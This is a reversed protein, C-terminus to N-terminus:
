RILYTDGVKILMGIYKPQTKGNNEVAQNYSDLDFVENTDERFAYVTNKYTLETANWEVFDQNLLRDDIKDTKFSPYSSFNNSSVKGYGYCVIQNDKNSYLECDISTEKIAHLIQENIDNKVSAIEYLSEDTTVPTKNDLRSKDRDRLEIHKDSTQQEKSLTSLYLFVKVNRLEEPLLKHSCIRRARGIVQQIRVMHWYPEVIHVFRTNTLNIGEAGSSTIMFIKIIEGLHNNDHKLILKSVINAPVVTWNSNYINRILEKVEPSETGTYLVFKPKAADIDYEEIDYGNNTKKLKFEAFGNALLILRLIGIGEITRFQSYLLHLGKNDENTINQILKLFKPSYTGLNSLSLFKSDGNEDNASLLQLTNDILKNYSIIEEQEEQVAEEEIYTNMNQRDNITLGNIDDESINQKRTPPLPRTIDNPFAFNCAARSFIKYTSSITFMDKDLKKIKKQNREKDAEIKRIKEYVSFQHQSMETRVIHYETDHDTKVVSPLLQEAASRFYSTLGLIRKQFLDSNKLNGTDEDIFYSIFEDKDDPLATNNDIQINSDQVNINNEKLIKLIIEVFDNDSVNGTPDLKVGNYKNFEINGGSTKSRTKNNNQGGKVKRKQTVAKIAGKKKQNIFGYPNRTIILKNDKYDVFDFLRFNNKDFFKLILNTNIPTGSSNISFTYTKIFGRLLNFLVAIENPYNIIPTGTLLVIRANTANLLYHYLRFAISTPNKLKNVIRSVFNHAEDIIIISNDFPNKTNKNSLNDIIKTLNPANYNIDYYKARIMENLQLDINNQDTTSLSEYNSPKKINIMWAGGNNQIYDTSLNLSQSLVNIYETKGEISVFEWFQHKKYLEDGCKKLESFFNMKLSAPTLLFVQKDNKMGEALAISSCTKGSGLGHFLLLGRYPTYLNFYDRIVKQHTLLEFKPNTETSDMTECTVRKKDKKIEDFYNRFLESNKQMFIKRNHLYFPSTKIATKNMKPLRDKVKDTNIVIEDINENNIIIKQDVKKKPRGRKNPPKNTPQPAVNPIPKIVIPEDPQPEDSQPEDPQPEDPQPEDSQPEDSPENTINNNIIPQQIETQMIPRKSKINKNIPVNFANRQKLREIMENRNSSNDNRKDFVQIKPKSQSKDEKDQKVEEDLADNKNFHIVIDLKKQPIPRTKLVDLPRFPFKNM